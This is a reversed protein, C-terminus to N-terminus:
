SLAQKVAFFAPKPQYEADFLLPKQASGIWTVADSIGWTTLRDCAAVDWCATAADRYSQTQAAVPRAPGSQSAVDMETIEVALGLEAFREFTTKM